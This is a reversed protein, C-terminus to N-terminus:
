KKKQEETETVCATLGGALLGVTILSCIIRNIRMIAITHIPGAVSGAEALAAFRCSVAM